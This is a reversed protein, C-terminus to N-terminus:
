SVESLPIGMATALNSIELSVRDLDRHDIYHIEPDGRLWTWQRRALQRTREIIKQRLAKESFRNELYSLCESYGISQLSRANPYKKHLRKTEDILGDRLMKETRFVINQNLIHRPYVLAYEMWYCSNDSPLTPKLESPKLNTTRLIALARMLRYRDNPHIKQAGEPDKTSVEQHMRATHLTGDEFFEKEIMELVEGSIPPIPFMGNQIARFYFYTGGVLIPIRGRNRIESITKGAYEVFAGASFPEDPNLLDLGHHPVTNRDEPTPKNSGIDLERYVTTSDVCLIEGGIKKALQLAFLSKGSATPGLIALCIMRNM